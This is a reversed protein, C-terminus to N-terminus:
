AAFNAVGTDVFTDPKCHFQEVVVDENAWTYSVDGPQMSLFEKKVEKGLAKELVGIFDM